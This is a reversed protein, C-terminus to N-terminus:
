IKTEILIEGAYIEKLVGGINALLAGDDKLGIVKGKEKKEGTTILIERDRGFAIEEWRKKFEALEGKNYIFFNYNKDFVKVIELLLDARSIKKGMTSYISGALDKIEDPFECIESHVNIGVGLIVYKALDGESYLESLIGGIKRDDIMIDNPWKLKVDIGFKKLADAVSVGIVITLRTLVQLPLTPKLIISFYLNKGFPSFWFRGRRGKGATQLESIILTGETANDSIQHAYLNTSNIEIFSFINKGLSLEKFDDESLALPTDVPFILKYGKKSQTEISFGKEQLFKIHKWVATRSVNFKECIEKSSVWNNKTLTKLIEKWHM